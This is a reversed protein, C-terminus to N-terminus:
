GEAPGSAGPSGSAGGAGAVGAPGAARRVEAGVQEPSWAVGECVIDGGQGVLVFCPPGLVGFSRWVEAGVVVPEVGPPLGAVLPRVEEADPGARVVTVM